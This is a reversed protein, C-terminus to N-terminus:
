ACFPCSKAADVVEGDDVGDGEVGAAVGDGGEGVHGGRLAEPEAGCPEVPLEAGLVGEEGAVAGLDIMELVDADATSREGGGAVVALLVLV